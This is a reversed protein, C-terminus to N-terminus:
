IKHRISSVVRTKETTPGGSESLLAFLGKGGKLGSELKSPAGGGRMTKKMAPGWNRRRRRTASKTLGFRRASLEALESHWTPHPPAVWIAVQHPAGSGLEPPPPLHRRRNFISATPSKDRGDRKSRATESESEREGRVSASGMQTEKAEGGLKGSLLPDIEQHGFGRSGHLAGGGCPDPLDRVKPGCAHGWPITLM